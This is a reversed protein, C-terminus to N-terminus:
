QHNQPRKTLLRGALVLSHVRGFLNAQEDYGLLRVTGKVSLHFAASTGQTLKAGADEIAEPLTREELAPLRMSMLTRRTELLTQDAQEIAHELNIM